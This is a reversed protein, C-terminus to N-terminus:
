NVKSINNLKNMLESGLLTEINLDPQVPTSAIKPSPLINAQIENVSSIIPSVDVSSSILPESSKIKPSRMIGPSKLRSTAPLIQQKPSPILAEVNPDIKKVDTKSKWFYKKMLFYTTAVVVVLILTYIIIYTWSVGSSPTQTNQVVKTTPIETSAVPQEYTEQVQKMEIPQTQIDISVTNPKISKLVLYWNISANNVDQVIEGSFYGTDASKFELQIGSDLTSQDVILGWFPENTASKVNFVSQFYEYNQPNLEFLQQVSSITYQNQVYQQQMQPQQMQPQQMQPQQFFQASKMGGLQSVSPQQIPNAVYPSNVPTLPTMVNQANQM